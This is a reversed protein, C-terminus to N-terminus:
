VRLIKEMYHIYRDEFHRIRISYFGFTAYWKSISGDSTGLYLRGFGTERAKQIGDNVMLAGAGRGRFDERVCLSGFALVNYDKIIDDVMILRYFGIVDEEYFLVNGIPLKGVQAEKYLQEKREEFTCYGAWLHALTKNWLDAVEDIKDPCDALYKIHM